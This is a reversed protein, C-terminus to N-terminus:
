WADGLEILVDRILLTGRALFEFDIYDITDQDTHYHPNLDGSSVEEGVCVADIGHRRFPIHDSSNFEVLTLNMEWKDAAKVYADQLSVPAEIELTRNSNGDYGIMDINHMSHIELGQDILYALFTRSGPGSDDEEQDFFVLIYHKSRSSLQQLSHAISLLSAVGSANDDAGPSSKATDYHAGVIIYQDTPTTAQIDAYVNVGRMPPLMLDLIPHINPYAYEHIQAELNSRKLRKSLFAAADRRQKLTSRPGLVDDTEADSTGTFAAIFEQHKDIEEQIQAVSALPLWLACLIALATTKFM